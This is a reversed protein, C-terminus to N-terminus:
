KYPSGLYPSIRVLGGKAILSLNAELGIPTAWNQPQGSAINCMKHLM